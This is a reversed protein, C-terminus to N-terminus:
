VGNVNIINPAVGGDGDNNAADTGNDVIAGGGGGATTAATTDDVAAGGVATTNNGDDVLLDMLSPDSNLNLKDLARSIEDVDKVIQEQKQKSQKKLVYTSFINLM